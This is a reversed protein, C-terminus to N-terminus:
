IQVYGAIYRTYALNYSVSNKYNGDISTLKGDKLEYVMGIHDFTLNDTSYMVADGAKPIFNPNAGNRKDVWRGTAVAWQQWSVCHKPNVLYTPDNKDTVFPFGAEYWWTFVASACWPFKTWESRAATRQIQLLRPHGTNSSDPDEKVGNKIDTLAIAIAKEAVSAGAPLYPTYQIYEGPLLDPNGQQVPPPPFTPFTPLVDQGTGSIDDEEEDNVIFNTAPSVKNIVNGNIDVINAGTTVIPSPFPIDVRYNENNEIIGTFKSITDERAELIDPPSTIVETEYKSIEIQLRNEYDLKEEPTLQFEISPATLVPAWTGPNIVINSTVGVNQAAGIAPVVPIPYENLTAGTWYAVVGKGMEGVLDYPVNSTLGKQLAARFIQKMAEVNGTKVSVLNVTDGGRKVAADYENAYTEAVIDIDDISQPNNAVRLVNQKFIEWSM